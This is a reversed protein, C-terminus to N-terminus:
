AETPRSRRVLPCESRRPDRVGGIARLREKIVWPGKRQQELDRHSYHGSFGFGRGDDDGVIQLKGASQTLRVLLNRAGSHKRVNCLAEQVIRALDTQAQDQLRTM